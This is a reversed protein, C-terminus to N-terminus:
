YLYIARMKDCDVGLRTTLYNEVSGYNAEITSFAKEIYERQVSGIYYMCTATPTDGYAAKMQEITIGTCTNTLMYDAIVTERDVGLASLFLAAGLGARDKGATCHFMLPSNQPQQLAEFFRKYDAQADLVMSENADVLMKKVAEVNGSSIIRLYDATGTNGTNIQIHLQSTVTAPVRDPDAAREEQSRFDIVTRLPISALYALDSETLLSCKGSRFVQGWKVHRGDKTKYGGLDRFNNQGEIPLQRPAFAARSGDSWELCYVKFDTTGLETKGPLSGQLIPSAFDIPSNNDGAFLKWSGSGLINLNVKKTAADAKVEAYSAMDGGAFYAGGTPPSDDKSCSALTFLLLLSTAIRVHSKM